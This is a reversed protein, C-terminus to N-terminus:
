EWSHDNGFKEQLRALFIVDCLILFKAKVLKSVCSIIISGIRVAESYMERQLNPSHVKKLKPTFPNPSISSLGMNTWHQYILEDTARSISYENGSGASHPMLSSTGLDVRLPLTVLPSQGHCIPIWQSRSHMHFRHKTCYETDSLQLISISPPINDIQLIERCRTYRKGKFSQSFQKNCIAGTRDAAARQNPLLPGHRRRM